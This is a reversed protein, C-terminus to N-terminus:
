RILSLAGITALAGIGVGVVFGRGGRGRAKLRWRLAEENAQRAEERAAAQGEALPAIQARLISQEREHSRTSAELRAIIVRALRRKERDDLRSWLTDGIAQAEEISFCVVRDSENPSQAFSARAIALLTLLVLARM